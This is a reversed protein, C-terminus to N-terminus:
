VFNDAKKSISNNPNHFLHVIEVSNINVCRLVNLLQQAKGMLVMSFILHEWM